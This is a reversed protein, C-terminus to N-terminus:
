SGWNIPSANQALMQQEWGLISGGGGYSGEGFYNGSSMASNLGDWGGFGAIADNGANYADSIAQGAEYDGWDGAM